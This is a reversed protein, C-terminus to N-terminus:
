NITIKQGDIRYTFHAMVSLAEMISTVPTNAVTLRTTVLLEKRSNHKFAIKVNYWREIVATMESLPVGDFVLHGDKWDTIDNVPVPNTKFTENNWVCQQGPQLHALVKIEKGKLREISVEGSALAVTVPRNKFASIKFSTGIDRTQLNGTRVIFAQEPKHKVDFFAEGDLNIDRNDSEFNEPFSIKSGAGLYVVSSDPLTIVSRKGYPNVIQRMRVLRNEAPKSQKQTIVLILSIIVAASISAYRFLDSRFISFVNSDKAHGIRQQLEKYLESLQLDSLDDTAKTADWREQLVEDFLRQGEPTNLAHLVEQREAESCEHSLFRIISKKSIPEQM